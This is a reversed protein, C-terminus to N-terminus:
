IGKGIIFSRGFTTKLVVVWPGNVGLSFLSFNLLKKIYGAANSSNLKEQTASRSQLLQRYLAPSSPLTQGRKDTNLLHLVNGKLTTMEDRYSNPAAFFRM